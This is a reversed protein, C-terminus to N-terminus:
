VPRWATHMLRGHDCVAGIGEPRSKSKTYLDVSVAPETLRVSLIVALAGCPGTQPEDVAAKTSWRLRKVAESGPKLSISAPAPASEEVIATEVESGDDAFLALSGFGALTCPSGKVHKLYLNVTTETAGKTFTGLRVALTEVRCTTVVYNPKASPLKPAGSPRASAAAFPVSPTAGSPSPKATSGDSDSGSCGTLIALASAVCLLRAFRM